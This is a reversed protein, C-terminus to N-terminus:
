ALGALHHESRGAKAQCDSWALATLQALHVLMRPPDTPRPRWRTHDEYMSGCWDCPTGPHLIEEVTPQQAAPQSHVLSLRAPSTVLLYAFDADHIADIAADLDRDAWDDGADRDYIM